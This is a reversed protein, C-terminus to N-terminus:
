RIKGRFIEEQIHRKSSNSAVLYAKAIFRQSLTTQCVPLMTPNISLGEAASHQAM